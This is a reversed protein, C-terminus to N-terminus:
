LLHTLKVVLFELAHDPRLRSRKINLDAEQLFSLGKYYNDTTTQTKCKNGWFWVLGGMLMVPANGESLLDELIKLANEANRRAMANTMDFVNKKKGQGYQFVEAIKKAQAICGDKVKEAESELVLHVREDPADLFAKIIEWNHPSFKHISRIVVLRQPSLVPLSLIAKKLVDSDLKHGYLLEFDFKQADSSHIFKKKIESIKKDKAPNDDGLILTIM